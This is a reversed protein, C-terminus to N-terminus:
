DDGGMFGFLALLNNFLVFIDALLSNAILIYNTIGGRAAQQTTWVIWFCSLFILVTSIALGLAPLKLFYNLIIAAFAVLTGVVLMGIMQSFDRKTTLAYGSLGFFAVATLGFSATILEGANSYSALAYGVNGGTIIGLFAAFGVSVLLGAASDKTANIAFSFGFIGAIMFWFPMYWGQSQAVFATGAGIIFLGGLLLYTNRLVRNIQLTRTAGIDHGTNQYRLQDNM